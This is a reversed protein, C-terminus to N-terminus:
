IENLPKRELSQMSFGRTYIMKAEKVIGVGLGPIRWLDIIEQLVHDLEKENIMTHEESVDKHITETILREPVLLADARDGM